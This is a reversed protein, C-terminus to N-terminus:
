IDYRSKYRMDLWYEVLKKVFRNFCVSEFVNFYGYLLMSKRFIYILIYFVKLVWIM